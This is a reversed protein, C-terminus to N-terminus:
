ELNLLQNLLNCGVIYLLKIDGPYGGEKGKLLADYIDAVHVLPMTKPPVPLFKKLTGLPCAAPEAPCM